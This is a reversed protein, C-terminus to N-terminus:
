RENQSVIALAMGENQPLEQFQSGQCNRDHTALSKKKPPMKTETTERATGSRSKVNKKMPKLM